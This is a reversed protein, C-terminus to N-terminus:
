RYIEALRNNRKASAAASKAGYIEGVISGIKQGRSILADVYALWENIDTEKLELAILAESLWRKKEPDPNSKLEYDMLEISKSLQWAKMKVEVQQAKTLDRKAVETDIQKLLLDERANAVAANAYNLQQQSQSTHLAQWSNQLSARVQEDGYKTRLGYEFYDRANMVQQHLNKLNQGVIQADVMDRQSAQLATSAEIAQQQQFAHVASSAGMDGYGTYSQLTPADFSPSSSANGSSGNGYMLNPNLGADAYRQMQATPTNYANERNWQELDKEYKYKALEMNAVNTNDVNKKGIISGILSGAGSILAGGLPGTLATGVSKLISGLGM